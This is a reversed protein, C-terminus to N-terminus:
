ANRRDAAQSSDFPRGTEPHFPPPQGNAQQEWWVWSRSLDTIEWEGDAYLVRYRGSAPDFGTVTGRFWSAEGEWYVWVVARQTAACQSALCSPCLWPRHWLGQEDVVGKLFEPQRGAVDVPHEEGLVTAPRRSGPREGGRRAIPITSEAAEEAAKYPGYAHPLPRPMEPELRRNAHVTGCSFCRCDFLGVMAADSSQLQAQDALTPTSPGAATRHGSSGGRRTGGRSRATSSTSAGSSGAAATAGAVSVKAAESARGLARSIVLADHWVSSGKAFFGRANRLMLQLDAVCEEVSGYLQRQVRRRVEDLCLPVPTQELFPTGMPALSAFTASPDPITAAAQATTAAGGGEARAKGMAAVEIYPRAPLYGGRHLFAEDISTSMAALRSVSRAERVAELVASLRADLQLRAASDDLRVSCIPDSVDKIVPPCLPRGNRAAFRTLEHRGVGREAVLGDSPFRVRSAFYEAGVAAEVAEELPDRSDMATPGCMEAFLPQPTFTPFSVSDAGHLALAPWHLSPPRKSTASAGLLAAAGAERVDDAGSTAASAASAAAARAARAKHAQSTRLSLEKFVVSLADDARRAFRSSSPAPPLLVAPALWPPFGVSGPAGAGPLPADRVVAPAHTGLSASSSSSSSSMCSPAAGSAVPALHAAHAGLSPLPLDLQKALEAQGAASGHPGHHGPYPGRAPGRQAHSSPSFGLPSSMGPRAALGPVGLSASSRGSSPNSLLAADPGPSAPFLGGASRASSMAPSSGPWPLASAEIAGASPADDEDAPRPRKPASPRPRHSLMGLTVGSTHRQAPVLSGPWMSSPGSAAASSSSSSFSPLDRSVGPHLPAGALGSSHSAMAPPADPAAMLVDSGDSFASAPRSGELMRPGSASGPRRSPSGGPELPRAADKAGSAAAAAAEQKIVQAAARQAAAVTFVATSLGVPAAAAVAADAAAAAGSMKGETAPAGLARQAAARASRAAAGVLQRQGRPVAKGKARATLAAPWAPDPGSAKGAGDSPPPRAVTAPTAIVCGAGAAGRAMLRARKTTPQFVAAGESHVAPAGASAAAQPPRESVSHRLPGKGGSAAAGAPRPPRPIGSLGRSPSTCQIRDLAADVVPNRARRLAAAPVRAVCRIDRVASADGADLRQGFFVAAEAVLAERKLAERRTLASFVGSALGLKHRVAALAALEPSRRAAWRLQAQNPMRFRRRSDASYLGVWSSGGGSVSGPSASPGARPSPSDRGRKCKPRRPDKPEPAALATYRACEAEANFRSLARPLHRHRLRLARQFRASRGGSAVDGRRAPRRAVVPPVEGHAAAIVVDVSVGGAGFVFTQLAAGTEAEAQEAVPFTAIARARPDAVSGSIWVTQSGTQVLAARGASGPASISLRGSHHQAAPAIRGLASFSKLHDCRAAALTGALAERAAKGPLARVYWGALWACMPHVALRSREVRSAVRGGCTRGCVACPAEDLALETVPRLRYGTPPFRPPPDAFAPVAPASALWARNSAECHTEAEIPWPQCAPDAGGADGDEDEDGRSASQRPPRFVSSPQVGTPLPAPAGGVLRGSGLSEPRPRSSSAFPPLLLGKRRERGASRLMEALRANNAGPTSSSGSSLTFRIRTTGVAWGGSQRLLLDADRDAGGRTVTLTSPNHSPPPMMASVSGGSAQTASRAAAQGARMAAHHARAADIGAAVTAPVVFDLRLVLAAAGSGQGGGAELGVSPALLAPFGAALSAAPDFRPDAVRKPTDLFASIPPCPYPM